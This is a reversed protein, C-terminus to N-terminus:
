QRRWSQRHGGTPSPVDMTAPLFDKLDDAVPRRTRISYGLDGQLLNSLYTLYQEFVPRDLGLEARYAAIQEERANGGLAAAAPDVPVLQALAFTITTVGFIVFILGAIRRVIFGFM